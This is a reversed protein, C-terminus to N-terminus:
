QNEMPLGSFWSLLHNKDYRHIAKLERHKSLLGFIYVTLVEDDSFHKYGGNTFRQCSVWLKSQFEKSIRLYLTILVDERNM